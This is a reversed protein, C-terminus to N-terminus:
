CGMSINTIELNKKGNSVEQGTGSEYAVELHCAAESPYQVLIDCVENRFNVGTKRLRKKRGYEM